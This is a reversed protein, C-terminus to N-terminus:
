DAHVHNFSICYKSSDIPCKFALSIIVSKYKKLRDYLGKWINPAQGEQKFDQTPLLELMIKTPTSENFDGLGVKRRGSAPDSLYVQGNKVGEVVLFHASEWHCIFPFKQNNLDDNLFRKGKVKLGFTQAYDRIRLINTGDRSVGLGSRLESLPIWKGYYGLIIALSAAGCEAAEFQLITPTKVPKHM